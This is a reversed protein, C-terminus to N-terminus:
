HKCRTYHLTDQFKYCQNLVVIILNLIETTCNEPNHRMELDYEQM